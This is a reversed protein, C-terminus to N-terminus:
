HRQIRYHDANLVSGYIRLSKIYKGINGFSYGLTINDIKWYDGDEVYYSNSNPNWKALKQTNALYWTM